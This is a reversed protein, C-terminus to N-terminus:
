PKKKESLMNKYFKNYETCFILLLFLHLSNRNFTYLELVVDNETSVM